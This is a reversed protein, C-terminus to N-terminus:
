DWEECFNPRPYCMLLMRNPNGEKPRSPWGFFSQREHYVGGQIFWRPMLRNDITIPRATYHAVDGRRRADPELRTHFARVHGDVFSAQGKGRYRSEQGQIVRNPVRASLSHRPDVGSMPEFGAGSHSVGLWGDFWFGTSAPFPLRALSVPPVEPYTAANVTLCWNPMLSAQAPEDVCLPCGVGRVTRMATLDTPQLDAPCLAVRHDRLYPQLLGWVTRLCAGSGRAMRYFALPFCEDYDQTYLLTAKSLQRLNSACVSAKSAHRATTFVPFLLAALVALIAIVVLLEVLTFGSQRCMSMVGM